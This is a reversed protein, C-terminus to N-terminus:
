FTPEEISAFLYEIASGYTDQKRCKPVSIDVTRHKDCEYRLLM